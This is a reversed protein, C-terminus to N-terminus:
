VDNPTGLTSAHSPRCQHRRCKYLRVAASRRHRRARAIGAPGMAAITDSMATEPQEYWSADSAEVSSPPGCTVPVIFGDALAGEPASDLLEGWASTSR